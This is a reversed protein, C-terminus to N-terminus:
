LSICQHAIMSIMEGMQALRSQQLMFGTKENNKKIELAVRDELTHSLEELAKEATINEQIINYGHIHGNRDTDPTINTKIWFFSGDKKKKKIEGTWVKGQTITDWINQILSDPMDAHYIINHKRELLEELSYGSIDLFAKSVYILKGQTDIKSAIVNKDFADLLRRVEDTIELLSKNGKIINDYPLL